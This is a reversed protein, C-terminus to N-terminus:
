LFGGRRESWRTRGHALSDFTEKNRGAVAVMASCKHVLRRVCEFRGSDWQWKARANATPGLAPHGLREEGRLYWARARREASCTLPSAGTRQADRAGAGM